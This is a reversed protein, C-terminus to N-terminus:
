HRRLIKFDRGGTSIVDAYDARDWRGKGNQSWKAIKATLTHVLLLFLRAAGAHLHRSKGDIRTARGLGLVRLVHCRRSRCTALTAKADERLCDVSALSLITLAPNSAVNRGDQGHLSSMSRPTIIRWSLSGHKDEYEITVDRNLLLRFPEESVPIHEAKQDM